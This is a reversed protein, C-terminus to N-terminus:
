PAIIKPPACASCLDDEVWTCPQGTKAVCQDCNDNTCGCVKCHQELLLMGMDEPQLGARAALMRIEQVTLTTVERDLLGTPALVSKWNDEGRDDPFEELRLELLDVLRM